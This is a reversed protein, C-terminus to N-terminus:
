AKELGLEPPDNHMSWEEIISFSHCLCPFPGEETISDPFKQLLDWIFEESTEYKLCNLLLNWRSLKLMSIKKPLKQFRPASSIKQIQTKKLVSVIWMITSLSGHKDMQKVGILEHFQSREKRNHLQSPLNSNADVIM